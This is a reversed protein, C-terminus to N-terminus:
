LCRVGAVEERKWTNGLELVCSEGERESDMILTADETIFMCRHAGIKRM